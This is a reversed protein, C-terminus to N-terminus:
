LSGTDFNNADCSPDKYQVADRIALSEEAVSPIVSPVAGLFCM